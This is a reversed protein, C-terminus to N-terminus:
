KGRGSLVPVKGVSVGQTQLCEIHKCHRHILLHLHDALLATLVCNSKGVVM